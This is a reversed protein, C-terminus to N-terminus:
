NDDEDEDVTEIKINPTKLNKDKKNGLTNVGKEDNSTGQQRKRTFCATLPQLFTRINNCWERVAQEGTQRFQASMACYLTFNVASNLLVLDDQLDGFYSYVTLSFNQNFGSVLCVLGIPMEVSVFFLVITVLMITTGQRNNRRSSKKKKDDKTSGEKLSSDNHNILSTMEVTQRQLLSDGTASANKRIKDENRFMKERTRNAKSVKIIIPACFGIMVACPVLRLVAAYVIFNIDKLQESMEFAYSLWYQNDGYNEVKFELYAPICIVIGLFTVIAITYKVREMSCFTKAETHRCVSIWRIVSLSVTLWIAVNHFTLFLRNSVLMYTVWFQSYQSACEWKVCKVVIYFYIAYPIYPLMTLSDAIAIATLLVNVPTRMGRRSFILITFFNSLLGYLCLAVAVYGHALFYAECFVAPWWTGDVHTVPQCRTQSEMEEETTTQYITDLLESVFVATTVNEFQIPLM